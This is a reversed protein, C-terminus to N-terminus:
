FWASSLIEIFLGFVPKFFLEFDLFTLYSMFAYYDTTWKTCITWAEVINWSIRLIFRFIRMGSYIASKMLGTLILYTSSSPRTITRVMVSMQPLLLAAIEAPTWRWCRKKIRVKYFPLHPIHPVLTLYWTYWPTVPALQTHNFFCVLISYSSKYLVHIGSRYTRFDYIYVNHLMHTDACM